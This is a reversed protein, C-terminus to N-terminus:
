EAKPKYAFAKGEANLHVADASRVPENNDRRTFTSGFYPNYRIPVMGQGPSLEALDGTIFAHVNKKGERLVRARGGPRVVM